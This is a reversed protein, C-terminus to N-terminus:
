AERLVQAWDPGRNGPASSYQTTLHFHQNLDRAGDSTGLYGNSTETCAPSVVLASAVQM